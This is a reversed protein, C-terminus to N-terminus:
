HVAPICQPSAVLWANYSVHLMLNSAVPQRGALRVSCIDRWSCSRPVTKRMMMMMAAALSRM